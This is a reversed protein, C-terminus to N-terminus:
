NTKRGHVMNLIMLKIYTHNEPETAETSPETAETSPETAETPKTGETQSASPVTDDESPSTEQSNNACACLLLCLALIVAFRKKM